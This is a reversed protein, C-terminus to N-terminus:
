AVSPEREQQEFRLELQKYTRRQAEIAAALASGAPTIQCEELDREIQRPRTIWEADILAAFTSEPIHKHEKGHLIFATGAVLLLRTGPQSLAVLLSAPVKRKRTTPM